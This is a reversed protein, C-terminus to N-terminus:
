HTFISHHKPSIGCLVISVPWAVCHSLQAEVVCQVICLVCQAYTNDVDSEGDCCTKVEYVAQWWAGIEM